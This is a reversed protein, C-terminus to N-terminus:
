LQQGGINFSPKRYRHFPPFGFSNQKIQFSRTAPTLLGEKTPFALKEDKGLSNSCYFLLGAIPVGPKRKAFFPFIPGSGL